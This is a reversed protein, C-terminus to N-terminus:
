AAHEEGGGHLVAKAYSIGVGYTGAYREIVGTTLAYTGARAWDRQLELLYQVSTLPRAGAQVMRTIAREHAETSIDGCADAIFYVEFGQELASLVPDVICVSTWLGAIVIRDKGIENVRATIRPDEWCNMATRDIVPAGPFAEKIETLLPGSFSKEAATTLITPIGFGAAINAVLAVNTRLAAGDISKTAFMMQSQHDALILTHDSPSLLSAGATPIATIPM